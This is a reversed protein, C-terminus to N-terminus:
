KKLAAKLDAGAKEIATKFDAVAKSIAQERADRITKLQPPVKELVKRDAEFKQRAAKLSALFTIRVTKPEANNACDTKAKGVAANVSNQFTAIVADVIPGRGALAQNYGDRYAKVAADVAQRRAAIAAKVTADFAAIAQKETDTKAARQLKAVHEARRADIQDRGQTRRTDRATFRQTLGNARNTQRTNFKSVNNAIQRTVGAGVNSILACFNKDSPAQQATVPNPSSGGATQAFASSPLVVNAILVM